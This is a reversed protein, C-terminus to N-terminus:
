RPQPPAPGLGGNRLSGLGGPAREGVSGAGYSGISGGRMQGLGGGSLSGAGSNGPSGAGRRLGGGVSPADSHVAGDALGSGMGHVGRRLGSSQEQVGLNRGDHCCHAAVPAASLAVVAVALCAPLSPFKRM